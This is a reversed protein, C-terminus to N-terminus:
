SAIAYVDSVAALRPVFAPTARPRSCRRILQERRRMARVARRLRYRRGAVLEVEMRKRTTLGQELRAVWYALLVRAQVDQPRRDRAHWGNERETPRGHIKFAANQADEAAGLTEGWWELANMREALVTWSPVTRRHYEAPATQELYLDLAFQRDRDTRPEVGHQTLFVERAFDRAHADDIEEPVMWAQKLEHTLVLWVPAIM